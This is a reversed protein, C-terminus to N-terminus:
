RDREQAQGDARRRALLWLAMMWLGFAAGAAGVAFAIREMPGTNMWDPTEVRRRLVAAVGDAEEARAAATERPPPAAAPAQTSAPEAAPPASTASAVPFLAITVGEYDLQEVSNAILQRIRPTFLAADFTEDHRIAVSATAPSTRRDLDDRAPPVIHVRASVVGTIETVTRSLEQSLGYVLRAREETPTSILRDESFLQGLTAFTERPLGSEEVVRVAAVFDEEAVRVTYAGDPSKSREADVGAELLRATMENADRQTLGEYLEVKCGALLVCVAAAALLRTRSLRRGNRAAGM